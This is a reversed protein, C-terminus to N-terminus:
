SARQRARLGANGNTIINTLEDPDSSRMLADEHSILRRGYLDALCQNLTQMGFKDQGIQM